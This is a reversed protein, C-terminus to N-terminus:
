SPEWIDRDAASRKRLWQWLIIPEKPKWKCILLLSESSGHFLIKGEKELVYIQNNKTKETYYYDTFTQSDEPFAEEYLFRTMGHEETELKRVNM